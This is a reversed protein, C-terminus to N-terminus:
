RYTGPDFASVPPAYTQNKGRPAVFWALVALGACVLGVIVVHFFSMATQPPDLHNNGRYPHFVCHSSSPRRPQPCSYSVYHM